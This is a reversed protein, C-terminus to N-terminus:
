GTTARSGKRTMGSRQKDTSEDNGPAVGGGICLYCATLFRSM